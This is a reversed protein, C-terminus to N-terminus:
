SLCGAQRGLAAFGALDGPQYRAPLDYAGFSMIQREDRPHDLGVAHGIEQLYLVSRDRRSTVSWEEDDLAVSAHTPHDDRGWGPRRATPGGYVFRM